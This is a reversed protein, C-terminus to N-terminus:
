LELGRVGFPHEGAKVLRIELCGEVDGDGSRRVPLHDGVARGRRDLVTACGPHVGEGGGRRHAGVQHCQDGSRVGAPIVDIGVFVALNRQAQEAPGGQRREHVGLPQEGFGFLTEVEVVAVETHRIREALVVLQENRLEIGASHLVCARHGEKLVVHEAALHGAGGVLPAGLRQQM